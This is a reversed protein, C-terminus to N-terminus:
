VIAIGTGPHVIPGEPVFHGNTPQNWSCFYGEKIAEIDLTETFAAVESLRSMYATIHRYSNLYKLNLHYLSYYVSDFRSLHPFAHVDALTLEEGAIYRGPESLHRNLKDLYTFVQKFNSNYTQQDKAFGARYIPSIFENELQNIIQEIKSHKDEPYLSPYAFYHVAIDDLQNIIEASENNIITNSITDFLIPVSVRGSYSPTSLEYIAPLRSIGKVPSPASDPSQYRESINWGKSTQVSGAITLGITDTLKSLKRVIETRHAFPCLKSTFLWYRNAEFPTEDHKIKGHFSTTTVHCIENSKM